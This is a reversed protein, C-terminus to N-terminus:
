LSDEKWQYSIHELTKPHKRCEECHGVEYPIKENPESEIVLVCTAPTAKGERRNCDLCSWKEGSPVPKFSAIKM